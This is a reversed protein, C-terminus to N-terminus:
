KGIKKKLFDIFGEVQSSRDSDPDHKLYNEFVEIAEEYQGLSLHTLGLQYIGDLFDDKIEVARKYYRLAETYESLEYFHTGLNYLVAPNDIEEFKIKNYWEMAKENQGRNAYCNGIVLKMENNDPEKELVKEFYEQALEYKGMEFFCRGINKSVTYADPFEELIKQYVDIAEQYSEEEFLKNGKELEGKLGDTSVSAEMKKLHVEIDPNSKVESINVRIKKREYGVKLFDIEWKGGRIWAAVWKGGTDTVTEFGEQGKLSFLKIRVGELPIGDEDSVFGRVRGKGRYGQPFAFYSVLFLLLFSIFAKKM